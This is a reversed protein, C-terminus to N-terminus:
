PHHTNSPKIEDPQHNDLSAGHYSRTPRRDFATAIM